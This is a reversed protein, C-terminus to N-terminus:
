ADVIKRAIDFAAARGGRQKGLLARTDDDQSEKLARELCANLDGEWVGHLGGMRMFNPVGPAFVPVSKALEELRELPLKTVKAVAKLAMVSTNAEPLAYTRGACLGFAIFGGAISDGYVLAIVKHGRRRAQDQLEVLHGIYRNLGLLEDRLSMKQGRNDVLMLIPRGPSERMVKIFRRALPLIEKIGILAGDCTGIVEVAGSSLRGEGLAISDTIAVDHGDPFLKDLLEKLTM